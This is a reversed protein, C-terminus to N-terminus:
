SANKPKNSQGMLNKNDTVKASQIVFPQAADSHLNGAFVSTANPMLNKHPASQKKSKTSTVAPGTYLNKTTATNTVPSYNSM